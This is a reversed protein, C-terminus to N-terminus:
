SHVRINSTHIPYTCAGMWPLPSINSFNGKYEYRYTPVNIQHRLKATLQAPCLFGVVTDALALTQNPGNPNLNKDLTREGERRNSGLIAPKNIDAQDTPQLVTIRVQKVVKGQLLRETYNTFVLTNDAIPKFTLGKTGNYNQLYDIITTAPKNRM